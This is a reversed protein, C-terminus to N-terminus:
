FEKMCKMQIEPISLLSHIFKLDIILYFLIFIYFSVLGVLMEYLVAGLCWWDVSMGYKQKKLVEPALNLIPKIILSFDNFLISYFFFWSIRSNWM